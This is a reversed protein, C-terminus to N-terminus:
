TATHQHLLSQFILFTIMANEEVIAIENQRVRASSPLGPLPKLTGSFATASPLFSLLHAHITQYGMSVSKM